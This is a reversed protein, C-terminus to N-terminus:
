ATISLDSVTSGAVVTAVSTSPGSALGGQNCRIDTSTVDTVVLPM